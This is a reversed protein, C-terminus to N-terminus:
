RRAAWTPMACARQWIPPASTSRSASAPGGTARAFGDAMYAAAKESHTVVRRVGLDELEALARVALCPVYFIHSVGYGHLMRALVQAGLLKEAMPTETM